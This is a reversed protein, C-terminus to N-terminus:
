GNTGGITITINGNGTDTFHLNEAYQEAQEAYGQAATESAAAAQASQNANRAATQADTVAQGGQTAIADSADQTADHITGLSETTATEVAGEAATQAAGIATLADNKATVIQGGMQNLEDLWNDFPEPPTESLPQLSREVKMKYVVTKKVVGDVTYTFQAEGNGEVATDTASVTWVATAGSQDLAVPYPQSDTRRKVALTLTGEGYRERLAAYNIGYVQADNDGQRGLNLLIPVDRDLSIITM